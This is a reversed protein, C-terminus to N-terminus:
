MQHVDGYQGQQIIIGSGGIGSIKEVVRTNDLHRFEIKAPYPDMLSSNCIFYMALIPRFGSFTVKTAQPGSFISLTLCCGVVLAKWETLISTRLNNTHARESPKFSVESSSQKSLTTRTEKNERKVEHLYEEMIDTCCRKDLSDLIEQIPQERSTQEPSIYALLEKAYAAATLAAYKQWADNKHSDAYDCIGRIAICPFDNMLGAAEMEVCLAGLERGM